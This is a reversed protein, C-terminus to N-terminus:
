WCCLGPLQFDGRPPLQVEAICQQRRQSSIAKAFCVSLLICLSVSQCISPGVSPTFVAQAPVSVYSPHIVRGLQCCPILSHWLWVHSCPEFGKLRNQRVLGGWWSSPADGARQEHSPRNIDTNYAVAPSTRNPTRNVHFAVRTSVMSTQVPAEHWGRVRVSGIDQEGLAWGQISITPSIDPAHQPSSPPAPQNWPFARSSTVAQLSSGGKTKCHEPM